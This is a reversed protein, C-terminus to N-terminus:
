LDIRFSVDWINSLVLDTNLEYSVDLGINREKIPVDLGLGATFHWPSDYSKFINKEAGARLLLYSFIRQEVGGALRWTQDRYLPFKGEAILFTNYHVQFTGGMSLALPSNEYYEVGRTENQYKNIMPINTLVLGYDIKKSLEVLLGFDAGFGYGTGDQSYESGDTGTIRFSSINLKAGVSFPPMIGFLDIFRYSALSSIYLEMLYSEPSGSYQVSHGWALEKSAKNIFSASFSNLMGFRNQFSASAEPGDVWSAGAPNYFAGYADKSAAIYCNGMGKARASQPMSLASPDIGSYKEKIEVREDQPEIGIFAMALGAAVVSGSSILMAKKNDVEEGFYRTMQESLREDEQETLANIGGVIVDELTVGADGELECSSIVDRSNVDVLMFEVAYRDGNDVVTGFLMRELELSSGLVSICRPEHCYSPFKKRFAEYAEEMRPQNFVDYGGLEHLRNKILKVSKKALESDNKNTFPTMVGIRTTFEAAGLSLLLLLTLSVTKILRNVM